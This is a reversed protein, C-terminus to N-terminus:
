CGATHWSQADSLCTLTSISALSKKKKKLAYVSRWFYGARHNNNYAVHPHPLLAVQGKSEMPKQLAAISGTWLPDTWSSLSSRAM